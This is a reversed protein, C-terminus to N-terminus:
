NEKRYKAPTIGMRKKFFTNLHSTDYFELKEAIEKLTLDTTKLLNCIRELKMKNFYEVGSCGFHKLMLREFHTPSYGSLKSLTGLTLNNKNLATIEAIKRKFASTETPCNQELINLLISEAKINLSYCNIETPLTFLKKLDDFSYEFKIPKTTIIGDKTLEVFHKWVTQRQKNWVSLIIDFQEYGTETTINYEFDPPIIVAESKSLTIAKGKFEFNVSGSLIYIVHYNRHQRKENCYPPKAFISLMGLPPMLSNNYIAYFEKEKVM